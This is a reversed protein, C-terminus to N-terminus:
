SDKCFIYRVKIAHFGHFSRQNDCWINMLVTLGDQNGIKLTSLFSLVTELENHIYYAFVIILSKQIIFRYKGSYLFANKRWFTSRCHSIIITTPNADYPQQSQSGIACDFRRCIYMIVRTTFSGTIECYIKCYLGFWEWKRRDM